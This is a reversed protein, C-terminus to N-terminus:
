QQTEYLDSFQRMAEGGVGRGPLRGLRRTPLPIRARNACWGIGASTSVPNGKEVSSTSCGDYRFGTAPSYQPDGGAGRIVRVPFGQDSSVALALNQNTLMQDAVQAGTAPDRGGHGTYILEDGYDEDDEYGGSVVISDAGEAAAGFIGHMRPPHVGAEAVARRSSFTTGEAVGPIEGFIRQAAAM